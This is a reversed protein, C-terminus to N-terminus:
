WRRHPEPERATVETTPFHESMVGRDHPDPAQEEPPTGQGDPTAGTTSPRAVDAVVTNKGEAKARLLAEEARGMISAPRLDYTHDVFSLGFSATLSVSREGISFARSAISFRLREASTMAGELSTEPLLVCFRNDGCRAVLDAGRLSQALLAAIQRLAADAEEGFAERVEKFGDVDVLICSLDRKYREVREAEIALAEHLFHRSYVETAEDWIARRIIEEERAAPVVAQRAPGSAVVFDVGKSGELAERVMKLVRPSDELITVEVTERRPSSSRVFKKKKRFPIAM